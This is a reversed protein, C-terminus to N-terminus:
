NHAELFGLCPFSFTLIWAIPEHLALIWVRLWAKIPSPPFFHHWQFWPWWSYWPWPMTSMIKAACCRRFEIGINSCNEVALVGERNFWESWSDWFDLYVNERARYSIEAEAGVGLKWYSVFFGSLRIWPPFHPLPLPVRDGLQTAM